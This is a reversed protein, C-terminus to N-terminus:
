KKEAGELKKLFKAPDKDFEDRCDKCCLKVEQGKHVFVVPKGMEGLKEDSVLCTTLTYPKAAKEERAETTVSSKPEGKCSKCCGKECSGSCKEGCSCSCKECKCEKCCCAAATVTTSANARVATTALVTIAAFAALIIQITKM